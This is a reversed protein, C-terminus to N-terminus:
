FFFKLECFNPIAEVYRSELFLVSIKRLINEAKLTRNGKQLNVQARLSSWGRSFVPLDIIMSSPQARPEELCDLRTPSRTLM